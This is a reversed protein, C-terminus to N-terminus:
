LREYREYSTLLVTEITFKLFETSEQFKESNSSMLTSLCKLMAGVLPCTKNETGKELIKHEAAIISLVNNEVLITMLKQSIENSKGFATLAAFIDCKFDTSISCVTYATYMRLIDWDPNQFFRIRSFEDFKAIKTIFATLAQVYCIEESASSIM